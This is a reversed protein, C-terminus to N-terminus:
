HMSQHVWHQRTDLRVQVARWSGTWGGRGTAVAAEQLRDYAAVATHPSLSSVNGVLATLVDREDREVLYPVLAALSVKARCSNSGIHHEDWTSIADHTLM